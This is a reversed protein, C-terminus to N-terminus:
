GRRAAVGDLFVELKLTFWDRPDMRVMEAIGARGRDDLGRLSELPKEKLHARHEAVTLSRGTEDKTFKHFILAQETAMEAILIAELPAFGADLLGGRLNGVFETYGPPLSTRTSDLEFALGRNDHLVDWLQLVTARLFSRWGGDLRPWRIGVFIDEIIAVVLEDRSAFYGYLTSHSVGLRKGLSTMTLNDFGLDRAARLIM